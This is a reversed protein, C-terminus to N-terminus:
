QQASRGVAQQSEQAPLQYHLLAMGDPWAQQNLLVLPRPQPQARWLPIGAGLLQPVIFLMLEDVVGAALLPAALMSGGILWITNGEQQKLQSVFSVPDETVFHVSPHAPETPPRRTFVYNTLTPYPWDGLTLVQEYTARGQLTADATALFNGYGYDENPPPTPLWEVSGDPSAIYGDLSTAIYLVVKRM